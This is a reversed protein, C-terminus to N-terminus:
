QPAHSARTVLRLRFVFRHTVRQPLVALRALSSITRLAGEYADLLQRVLHMGLVDLM